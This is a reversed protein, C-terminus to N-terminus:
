IDKHAVGLLNLSNNYFKFHIVELYGFYKVQLLEACDQSGPQTKEQEKNAPISVCDAGEM